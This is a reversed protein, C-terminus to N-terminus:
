GTDAGLPAPSRDTPAPVGSAAADLQPSWLDTRFNLVFLVVFTLAVFAFYEVKNRVTLAWLVIVGTAPWYLSIGSDHHFGWRGIFSTM